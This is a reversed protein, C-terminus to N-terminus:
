DLQGFVFSLCRGRLNVFFSFVLSLWEVFWFGFFGFNMLYDDLFRLFIVFCAWAPFM